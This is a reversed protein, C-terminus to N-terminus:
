KRLHIRPFILVVNDCWRWRLWWWCWWHCWSFFRLRLGGLRRRHHHQVSLYFNGLALVPNHCSFEESQSWEDQTSCRVLSSSAKERKWLLSFYIDKWQQIIWSIKIAYFSNRYKKKQNRGHFSKKKAGQSRAGYLQPGLVRWKIETNRHNKWQEVSNYWVPWRAEFWSPVWGRRKSSKFLALVRGCM